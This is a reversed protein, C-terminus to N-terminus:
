EELGQIMDNMIFSIIQELKDQFESGFQLSKLTSLELWNQHNFMPRHILWNPTEPKCKDFMQNFLFLIKKKNENSLNTQPNTKYLGFIMNRYSKTQFEFAIKFGYADLTPHSFFFGQYEKTENLFDVENLQLTLSNSEEIEKLLPFINSNMIEKFIGYELNQLSEFASFSEKNKIIRQALEQNMKHYTNQGTLKKILHIYQSISERLSPNDVAEKKCTELWTLIDISYSIRKYKVKDKKAQINEDGFLTLYFIKSNPFANRYRLLQNHQDGAWIKNEIIIIKGKKDKLLIDIFGGETYDKSIKGISYELKITASLTDFEFDESFNQKIFLELFISGRKHLGNPNLLEAIFRSHVIVESNEIRLISFLNFSEGTAEALRDYSKCITSVENLLNLVSNNNSM